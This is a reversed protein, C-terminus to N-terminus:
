FYGHVLLPILGDQDTKIWIEEHRRPQVAWEWSIKTIPPYDDGGYVYFFAGHSPKVVM